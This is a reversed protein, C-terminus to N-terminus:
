RRWDAWNPLNRTEVIEGLTEGALHESYDEAIKDLCLMGIVREARDCVPLRRIQYDGMTAAADAITQNEFCMLVQTSMVDGVRVHKDSLGSALFRVVIDRDTIVGVLKDNELVSLIGVDLDRMKAAAEAISDSASITAAPRKTIDAVHM